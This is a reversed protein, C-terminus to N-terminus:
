FGLRTIESEQEAWAAAPLRTCIRRDFGAHVEGGDRFVRRYQMECLGPRAVLLCPRRRGLRRLLCTRRQVARAWPLLYMDGPRHDRPSGQKAHRVFTPPSTSFDPAAPRRQCGAVASTVTPLRGSTAPSWARSTGPFQIARRQGPLICASTRGTGGAAMTRNSPWALESNRM